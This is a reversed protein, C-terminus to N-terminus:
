LFHLPAKETDEMENWVNFVVVVVLYLIVHRTSVALPVPSVYWHVLVGGGGDLGQQIFGNCEAFSEIVNEGELDDVEIVHHSYDKYLDDEFPRRM